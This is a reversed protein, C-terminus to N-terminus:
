MTDLVRQLKEAVFSVVFKLLLAREDNITLKPPASKM